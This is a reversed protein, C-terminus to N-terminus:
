AAQQDFLSAIKDVLGREHFPGEAVWENEETNRARRITVGFREHTMLDRVMEPAVQFIRKYPRQYTMPKSRKIAFRVVIM